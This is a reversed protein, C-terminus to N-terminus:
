TAPQLFRGVPLECASALDKLHERASSAASDARSADGRRAFKEIRHLDQHVEVAPAHLDPSSMKPLLPDLSNAVDRALAEPPTTSLKAPAVAKAFEACRAQRDAASMGGSGCAAAAVLAVVAVAKRM